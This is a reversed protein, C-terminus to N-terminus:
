GEHREEQGLEIGNLVDRLARLEDTSLTLGKCPMKEGDEGSKWRRLDYSAKLRGWEVINLEISVKGDTLNGIHEVIKFEAKSM